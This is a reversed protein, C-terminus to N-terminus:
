KTPQYTFAHCAATTPLGKVDINDKVAVPVGYLPLATNGAAMLAKAEAIADAEERLTIFIAPDAHARIRAYTQTITAEPIAAGSRHAAVIAAVTESMAQRSRKDRETEGSQKTCPGNLVGM